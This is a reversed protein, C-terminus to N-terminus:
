LVDPTTKKGTMKSPTQLNEQFEPNFSEMLKPVNKAM